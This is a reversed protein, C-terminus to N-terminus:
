VAVVVGAPLSPQHQRFLDGPMMAIPGCPEGHPGIRTAPLIVDFRSAGREAGDLIGTAIDRLRRNSNLAAAHLLRMAQDRSCRNQLMILSVAADLIARSQLASRLHEPFPEPVHMRLALRLIKSISAAHAEVASVTADDFLGPTLAYCNLAARSTSDAKIPVALVSRVGEDAVARAYRQWQDDAGLDEILVTRQHRLATLCPGDDFAYQREDLRRAADSSSAVTSPAADREVTIACLMPARAGLMSASITTLGLLFESFGPSELLM